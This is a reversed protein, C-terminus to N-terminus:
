SQSLKRMRLVFSRWTCNDVNDRIFPVSRIGIGDFSKDDFRNMEGLLINGQIIPDKELYFGTHGGASGGSSNYKRWVIIDMPQLNELDAEKAEYLHDFEDWQDTSIDNIPFDNGRQRDWGIAQHLTSFRWSCGTVNAVFSSCDWIFHEPNDGGFEYSTSPKWVSVINNDFTSLSLHRGIEYLGPINNFLQNPCYICLDNVIDKAEESSLTELDRLELLASIGLTKVTPIQTNFYKGANLNFMLHQEESILQIADDYIGKIGDVGIMKNLGTFLTWHDSSKKGKALMIEKLGSSLDKDKQLRASVKESIRELDKGDIEQEIKKQLSLIDQANRENINTQIQCYKQAWPHSNEELRQMVEQYQEQNQYTSHAQLTSLFM